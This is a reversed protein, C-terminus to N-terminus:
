LCTPVSVRLDNDQLAESKARVRIVDACVRMFCRFGHESRVGRPAAGPTMLWSLETPGCLFGTEEQTMM